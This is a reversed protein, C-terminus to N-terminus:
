KLRSEIRILRDLVERQYKKMETVETTNANTQFSVFSLWMIGSIITIVLSISISTKEDLRM